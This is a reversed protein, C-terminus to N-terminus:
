LILTGLNSLILFHNKKKYKILYIDKPYNRLYGVEEGGGGEAGTELVGKGEPQLVAMRALVYDLVYTSRVARDMRAMHRKSYALLGEIIDRAGPM